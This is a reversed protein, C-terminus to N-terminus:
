RSAMAQEAASRLITFDIAHGTMLEVQGVGQAALLDLGTLVPVGRHRAQRVLPTPWPDYLVDFVLGASAWGWEGAVQAPVTSILIDPDSESDTVDVGWLTADRFLVRTKEMDRARVCVRSVGLQSLAYVCSRATAGNGYVLVTSGPGADELLMRVGSVDTNHIRTTERDSPHGDFIVTNGVGLTSVVEDPTGLGLIARKCPMTVSLGRWDNGLTAVFAGVEDSGVEHREYTWDLGLWEYAARHLVPSLSHSIPSGIVACRRMTVFVGDPSRQGLVV